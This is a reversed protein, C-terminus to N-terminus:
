AFIKNALATGYHSVAKFDMAEIYYKELVDHSAKALALTECAASLLEGAIKKRFKLRQRVGHLLSIDMFRRAHIRREDGGINFLRNETVFALSLEPILIHDTLKEPLFANKVTIIDAGHNLAYERVTQMFINSVNGYPDSIIIKNIYFNKITDTYSVIGLPTVGQLFRTTESGATNSKHIYKQATKIAAAKVQDARTFPLTTSLISSILQGCGLLYGSCSKHLLKNKATADAIKERNQYLIDSNWFEGLNIIQEKAGPLKPEVIHPATADLVVTKRKPFIVGDLSYPDSSCPCLIPEEGCDIGRATLYKMLSSKGTGPGGKILYAKYGDKKFSDDFYSIFGTCSNAGLFFKQMMKEM